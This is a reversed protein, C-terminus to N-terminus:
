AGGGVSVAVVAPHAGAEPVSGAVMAVDGDPVVAAVVPQPGGAGTAVVALAAVVPGLARAVEKTEEDKAAGERVGCTRQAALRWRGRQSRAEKVASAVRNVPAEEGAPEETAGSPPQGAADARLAFAAASVVSRAVAAITRRPARTSAVARVAAAVLTAADRATCAGRPQSHAM